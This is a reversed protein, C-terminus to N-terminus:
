LRPTLYSCRHTCCYMALVSLILIAMKINSVTNRKLGEIAEAQKRWQCAQTGPMDGSFVKDEVLEIRKWDVSTPFDEWLPTLFLISSLGALPHKVVNEICNHTSSFNMPVFIEWLTFRNRESGFLDEILKDKHLYHSETTFNPSLPGIFHCFEKKAEMICVINLCKLLQIRGWGRNYKWWGSSVQRGCPTADLLSM